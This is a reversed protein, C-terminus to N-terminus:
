TCIHIYLYNHIYLTLLVNQHNLVNVDVIEASFVKLAKKLIVSFRVYYNQKFLLTRGNCVYACLCVCIPLRARPLSTISNAAAGTTEENYFHLTDATVTCTALVGSLTKAPAAKPSFPAHGTSGAGVDWVGKRGSLWEIALTQRCLSLSSGALLASIFIIVM